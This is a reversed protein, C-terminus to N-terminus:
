GLSVRTLFKARYRSIRAQRVINRVGLYQLVTTEEDTMRTM